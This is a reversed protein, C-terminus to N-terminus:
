PKWFASYYDPSVGPLAAACRPIRPWLPQRKSCLPLFQMMFYTSTMPSPMASSGTESSPPLVGSAASVRGCISRRAPPRSPRHWVTGAPTGAPLSVASDCRATAIDMYKDDPNDPNQHLESDEEYTVKLEPFTITDRTFLNTVSVDVLRINSFLYEGSGSRTNDWHKTLRFKVSGRSVTAVTLRQVAMGGGVVTFQEGSSSALLEEDVADYLYFGVITYKGAALKLKESRLGYEANAANYATLPLTQSITNGDSVMVVKIKKADDLRELQSTARTGDSKTGVAKTGDAAGRKLLQFQVYGYSNDWEGTNEDSCGTAITALLVVLLSLLTTSFYRSTNM